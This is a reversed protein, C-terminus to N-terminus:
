DLRVCKPLPGQKLVWRYVEVMQAAIESWNYQQVYIRGREGMERLRQPPATLADALASKLGDVTPPVWWGCNHTELDQWPTGTTTIVPLGVSLAEAVVVGFNETFSPLVFLDANAYFSWKADDSLEGVYQVRDKLGLDKIRSLVETLHGGEDPGALQLLWGTTDVLSWAKLINMLGKVQHIRGVFLTRRIAGGPPDNNTVASTRYRSLAIGAPIVAIPLKLGLHRLNEGEQDATAVLIAASELDRKQYFHLAIKKRIPKWALSWPELMGHTQIILPTDFRHALNATLYNFRSWLGHSHIVSPKGAVVVEPEEGRRPTVYQYYSGFAKSKAIFVKVKPSISSTLRIDFRGTILRVEVGEQEAVTSALGSILRTPGGAKAGLGAVFHDVLV